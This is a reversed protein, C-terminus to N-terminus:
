AATALAIVDVRGTSAPATEIEATVAAPLQDGLVMAAFAFASPSPFLRVAIESWPAVSKSKNGFRYRYTATKKCVYIEGESWEAFAPALEALHRHCRQLQNARTIARSRIETLTNM